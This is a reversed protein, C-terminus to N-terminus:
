QVVMNYFFVEEVSGKPLGTTLLAAIKKKAREKGLESLLNVQEVYLENMADTIKDHLVAEHSQAFNAADVGSVRIWIDVSMASKQKDHVFANVTFRGLSLIKANEEMRHQIDSIGHSVEAVVKEHGASSQM